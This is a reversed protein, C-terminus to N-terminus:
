IITENLPKCETVIIILKVAKLNNQMQGSFSKKFENIHEESLDKDNITSKRRGIAIFYEQSMKYMGQGLVLNAM